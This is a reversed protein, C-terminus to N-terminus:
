KVRVNVAGAHILRFLWGFWKNNSYRPVFNAIISLATVVGTAISVEKTGALV